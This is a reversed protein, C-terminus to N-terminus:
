TPPLPAIVRDDDHVLEFLQEGQVRAVHLVREGPEKCPQNQLGVDV